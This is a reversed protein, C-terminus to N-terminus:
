RRGVLRRRWREPTLDRACSMTEGIALPTFSMRRGDAVEEGTGEVVTREGLLVLLELGADPPQAHLLGRDRGLLALEGLDGRQLV